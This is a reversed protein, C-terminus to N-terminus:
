IDDNLLLTTLNFAPKNYLSFTMYFNSITWAFASCFPESESVVRTVILFELMERKLQERITTFLVFTEQALGNM